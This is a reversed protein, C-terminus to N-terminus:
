NPMGGKSTDGSVSDKINARDEDEATMPVDFSCKQEISAQELAVLEGKLRSYEAAEPGDGGELWFLTPWLLLMGVAMQTADNDATKKLSFYLDNARRSVRDLEQNLQDCDYNKYQVPSVHSTSIDRPQSACASIILTASVAVVLNKLM